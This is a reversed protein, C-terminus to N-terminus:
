WHHAVDVILHGNTSTVRFPLRARVGLGVTTYGEFSGGDAVQRFTTYGAVNPMSLRHSVQAQDIVELFAGGKLPVVEGRGQDRVAKVYTVSYGLGSRNVDLVLRDFCEHRGARVASLTGHNSNTVAKRQTGWHTSCDTAGAATPVSVAIGAAVTVATASAFFTRM